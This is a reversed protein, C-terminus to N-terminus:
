ESYRLMLKAVLRGEFTETEVTKYVGEKAPAILAKSQAHTNVQMSDLLALKLEELELPQDIEVEVRQRPSGILPSPLSEAPVPDYIHVDIQGRYSPVGLYTDPEQAESLTPTQFAYEKDQGYFGEITYLLDPELVWKTYDNVQRNTRDYDATNIGNVLLVVGLKTKAQLTIKVKQKADPTPFTKNDIRKVEEDDYYLRIDLKDNLRDLEQETVPAPKTRKPLGVTQPKPTAPVDTSAEETTPQKPVITDTKIGKGLVMAFAPDNLVLADDGGRTTSVASGLTFSQNLDSLLTPTLAIDSKKLKLQQWEKPNKADFYRISLTATTVDDSVSVQGILFADPQISKKGWALPYQTDFLKRRDAPTAYSAKPDNKVAVATASRTIGIPDDTPNAVILANELMIAGAEHLRCVDLYVPGYPGGRQVEFNLIAVNKYGKEKLQKLVPEATSVLLMQDLADAAQSANLTLGCALTALIYRPNM